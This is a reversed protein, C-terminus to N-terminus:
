VNKSKEYGNTKMCNGRPVQMWSAFTPCDFFLHYSCNHPTNCLQTSIRLQHQSSNCLSHPFILTPTPALTLIEGSEFELECKLFLSIVACSENENKVRLKGFPLGVPFDSHSHSRSHPNYCEKTGNWSGMPTMDRDCWGWRLDWSGMPTSFWWDIRIGQILLINCIMNLGM